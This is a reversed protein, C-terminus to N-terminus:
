LNLADATPLEKWRYGYADYADTVVVFCDPAMQKIGDTITPLEKNRVVM